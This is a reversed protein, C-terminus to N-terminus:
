QNKALIGVKQLLKKEKQWFFDFQGLLFGYVLILIQYAPFIFLIYAITKLWFSTDDTFGLVSFLTKRLLVVTSGTLTFVLLVMIVQFTSKLQWKQMLRQLFNAKITNEM